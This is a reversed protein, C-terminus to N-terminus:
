DADARGTNCASDSLCTPPDIPVFNTDRRRSTFRTKSTPLSVQVPSSHVPCHFSRVAPHTRPINGRGSSPWPEGTVSRIPLAETLKRDLLRSVTLHPPYICIPRHDLLSSVIFRWTHRFWRWGAPLVGSSRSVPHPRHPRLPLHPHHPHPPASLDLYPASKRSRTSVVVSEGGCVVRDPSRFGM